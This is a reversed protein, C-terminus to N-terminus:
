YVACAKSRLYILPLENSRGQEIRVQKILSNKISSNKILSNKANSIFLRM